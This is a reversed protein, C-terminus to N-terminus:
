PSFRGTELSLPEAPLLEKVYHSSHYITILKEILLFVAFIAAPLWSEADGGLAAVIMAVVAVLLLAEVVADLIGLVPHGTYFYGGGPFAVSYKIATGLTKFSLRCGPCHAPAAELATACRPCLPHRGAATTGEGQGARPPLLSRLKKGAWGPSGTFAEKRGNRYRLTLRTGMAGQVKAEVLDGFRVQFVTPRPRLDSKTPLHLLRRETVVLLCRRVMYIVWGTTLLELVSFPSAAPAAFLVEEGPELVRGLLPAVGAIYKRQRSELLRKHRGKHDTFAIERNIPIEPPTAAISM